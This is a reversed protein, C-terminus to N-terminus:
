IQFLSDSRSKHISLQAAPQLQSRLTPQPFSILSNPPKAAAESRLEATVAQPSLVQLFCPLDM